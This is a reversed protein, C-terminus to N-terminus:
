KEPYGVTQALLIRQDKRLGMLKRLDSKNILARVVTGLGESACYLYVNQSICGATVASYILRKQDAIVKGTLGIKSGNQVYVLNLPAKGVFPQILSGTKSRVDKALVPQLINKKADYLYIGKKMAVYIDVEQWNMASPATRKGTEPRNIGDAAWLLNSLTNLSLKKETFKRTSKREWLCQMLLKNNGRQPPYLKIPKLQVSDPGARKSTGACSNVGVLVSLIVVLVLVMRGVFCSIRKM